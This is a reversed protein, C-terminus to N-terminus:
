EIGIIPQAMIWLSLCSYFIMLVLMPYQSIIAKRSDKFFREAVAHAIIVAIVHGVIILGVQLNWLLKLNLVTYSIDYNATGFLNWGKGFPDSVLYILRQGEVVLISLYHAVEYAISIPLLSYIFRQAVSVVPSADASVLKTLCSFGWYVLAFVAFLGALGMRGVISWPGGAAVRLSFLNQFFGTSLVGDAAVSSLMLLVFAMQSFDASGRLLGVAPPRLHVETKGDEERVETVSFRSLFSFFVSFPDGKSLWTKKGFFAMGAFTVLAYTLVFMALPYPTSSDLSVNEVWRFVFFLVFAPWVGWAAPWEREVLTIRARRLLAQAYEFLTKLPNILRWIDGLLASTFPVGVAFLIWVVTPLMNFAPNQDGWIGSALAILFFAVFLFKLSALTWKSALPRFLARESLKITPYAYLMDAFRRSVFALLIFSLAVVAGAGFLYLYLPVPLDIRQGFGHAFVVAPAGAVALAGGLVVFLSSFRNRFMSSARILLSRALLSTKKM